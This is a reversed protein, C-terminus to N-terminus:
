QSAGQVVKVDSHSVRSSLYASLFSALALYLPINRRAASGRPRRWKIEFELEESNDSIEHEIEFGASSPVEIEASGTKVRANKGTELQRLLDLVIPLVEEGARKFVKKM